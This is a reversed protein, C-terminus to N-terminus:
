IVVCLHTRVHIDSIFNM